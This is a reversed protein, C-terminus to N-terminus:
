IVIDLTNLIGDVMDMLWDRQKSDAYGMCDCKIHKKIRVLLECSLRREDLEFAFYYPQCQTHSKQLPSLISQDIEVWYITGLSPQGFREDFYKKLREYDYPSLGDIVYQKM